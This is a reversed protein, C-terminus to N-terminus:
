IYEKEFDSVNAVFFNTSEINKVEIDDKLYKLYKNSIAINITKGKLANRNDTYIKGKKSLNTGGSIPTFYLGTPIHKLRYPHSITCLKFEKYLIDVIIDINMMIQEHIDIKEMDRIIINEFDIRTSIDDLNKKDEFFNKVEDIMKKSGFPWSAILCEYECRAWFMYRSASIIWEKLDSKTKVEKSNFSKSKWVNKFYPIVDYKEIQNNFGNYNLVNFVTKM